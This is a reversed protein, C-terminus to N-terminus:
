AGAPLIVRTAVKTIVRLRGRTKVLRVEGQAGVEALARDIQALQAPTLFRLRVQPAQRRHRLPIGHESKSPARRKLLQNVIDILAGWPVDAALCADAGLNMGHEAEATGREHGILVVPDDTFRRIQSVLEWSDGPVPLAYLLVLHPHVEFM